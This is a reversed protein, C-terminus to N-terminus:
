FCANKNRRICGMLTLVRKVLNRLRQLSYQEEPGYILRGDQQPM